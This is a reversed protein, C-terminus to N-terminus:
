VLENLMSLTESYMFFTVLSAKVLLVSMSGKARPSMTQVPVSEAVSAPQIVM